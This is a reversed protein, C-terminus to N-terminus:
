RAGRRNTQFNWQFAEGEKEFDFKEDQALSTIRETLLPGLDLIGGLAQEPLVRLCLFRAVLEM